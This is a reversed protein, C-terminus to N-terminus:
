YTRLGQNLHEEFVSQTMDKSEEKAFIPAIELNTIVRIDQYQNGNWTQLPLASKLSAAQFTVIVNCIMNGNM